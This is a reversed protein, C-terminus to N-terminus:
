KKLKNNEILIEIFRIGLMKLDDPEHSVEFMARDMCDAINDPLTETPGFNLDLRGVMDILQSGHLELNLVTLSDPEVKPIEYSLIGTVEVGDMKITSGAGTQPISIEFKHKNDSM